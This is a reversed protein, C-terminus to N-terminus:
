PGVAGAPSVRQNLRYSADPPCPIELTNLLARVIDGDVGMAEDYDVVRVKGVRSWFKLIAEKDFYWDDIIKFKPDSMISRVFPVSELQHQWSARWERDNRFVIIPVIQANLAAGLAHLKTREARTRLFCLTEASVLYGATPCNMFHTRFAHVYRDFEISSHIHAKSTARVVTNLSSRVFYHAFELSNGSQMSPSGDEIHPSIGNQILHERQDFLFQQFSTTGTKHTGVHLYLTKM